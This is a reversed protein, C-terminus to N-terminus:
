RKSAAWVRTTYPVDITPRGLTELYARIDSVIIDFKDAAQRQLTGHSQWSEVCDDISQKHIVPAEFKELNMFLNSAAIVETQDERRTGYDYHPIHKLIIEESARQIPDGLDRHNWMCAFWGGDALIRAAELLARPRDTVNFSSGFTVLRFAGTAQGTAEGVGEHWRVLPYAGTRTIGHTRMADNPEVATVSLGRAALMLTLHAAGAGVDCVSQGKQIGALNLLRDIAEDSYAARKLYADALSTYDWNTKM